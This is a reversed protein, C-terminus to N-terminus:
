EYDEAKLRQETLVLSGMLIFHFVAAMGPFKLAYALGGGIVTLVIGSILVPWRLKKWVLYGSIILPIMVLMLVVPFQIQQPVYQVVGSVKKPVIEVWLFNTFIGLVTLFFTYLHYVVHTVFYESWEIRIRRMIDLSVYVLTPILLVHLLYRVISLMEFLESQGMWIGLSLVFNDYVFALIIFLIWSTGWFFSERFSRFSWIFLALYGITLVPYLFADM